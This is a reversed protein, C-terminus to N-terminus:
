KYFRVGKLRSSLALADLCTAPEGPACATVENLLVAGLQACEGEVAFTKVITKAGRVPALDVVMRRYVAGETNFLALDLKLADISQAGRNEIVFTLRCSRDANEAANLEVHTEEAALAFTPALVILLARLLAPM